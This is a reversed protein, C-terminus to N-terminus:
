FNLGGGRAAEALAKVRGHFLYSGRDFVVDSVGAAKAREAILKGVESAGEINWGKGTKFEKDNSSAAALTAGAADDIVQAYIHRGSRFVSLRPRSNKAVRRLKSRVRNRRRIALNRLTSTM